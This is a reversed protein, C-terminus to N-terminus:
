AEPDIAEAATAPRADVYEEVVFGTAVIMRM